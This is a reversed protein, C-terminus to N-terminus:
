QTPRKHKQIKEIYNINSQKRKPQGTVRKQKIFTVKQFFLFFNIPTPIACICVDIYVYNFFVMYFTKVLFFFSTRKSSCKSIWCNNRWENVCLESRVYGYRLSVSKITQNNENAFVCPLARIIQKISNPSYQKVLM